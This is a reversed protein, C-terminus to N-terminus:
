RAGRSEFVSRAILKVGALFVVFILIGDWIRAREDIVEQAQTTDSQATSMSIIQQIAPDMLVYLLAAVILIAFFGLLGIALGRSDARFSDM